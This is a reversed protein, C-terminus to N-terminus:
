NSCHSCSEKLEYTVDCSQYCYAFVDSLFERTTHIRPSVKQGGIFNYIILSYPERAEFTYLWEAYFQRNANRKFAILSTKKCKCKMCGYCDEIDNCKKLPFSWTYVMHIKETEDYNLIPKFKGSTGAVTLHENHEINIEDMPDIKISSRRWRHSSM